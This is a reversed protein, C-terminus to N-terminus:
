YKVCINLDQEWVSRLELDLLVADWSMDVDTFALVVCYLGM